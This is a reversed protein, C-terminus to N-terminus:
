YYYNDNVERHICNNYPQTIYDSVFQHNAIQKSEELFSIVQDPTLSIVLFRTSRYFAAEILNKGAKLIFIIQVM